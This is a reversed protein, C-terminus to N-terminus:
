FIYSLIIFIFRLSFTIHNWYFEVQKLFYLFLICETLPAIIDIKKYLDLYIIKLLEKIFIFKRIM